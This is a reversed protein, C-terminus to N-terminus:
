DPSNVEGCCKNFITAFQSVVFGFSLRLNAPMITEQKDRNEVKSGNRLLMENILPNKIIIMEDLVVQSLEQGEQKAVM